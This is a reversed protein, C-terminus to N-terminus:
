HQRQTSDPERHPVALLDDEDFDYEEDEDETDSDSDTYTYTRGYPGEGFESPLTPDAPVIVSETTDHRGRKPPRLRQPPRDAM